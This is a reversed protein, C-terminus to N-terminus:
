LEGQDDDIENKRHSPMCIAAMGIAIGLIVTFYGITYGPEGKPEAAAPAGWAVAPSLCLCGLVLPAVRRAVRQVMTTSRPPMKM